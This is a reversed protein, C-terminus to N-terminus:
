CSKNLPANALLTSRKPVTLSHNPLPTIPGAGNTSQTTCLPLISHHKVRQQEMQQHARREHAQPPLDPFTGLVKISQGDM